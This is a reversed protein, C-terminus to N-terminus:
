IPTRDATFHGSKKQWCRLSKNDKVRFIM